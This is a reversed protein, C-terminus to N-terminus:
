RWCEGNDEGKWRVMVPTVDISRTFVYVDGTKLNVYYPLMNVVIFEEGDVMFRDGPKLDDLTVVM